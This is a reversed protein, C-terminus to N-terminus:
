GANDHSGDADVGPQDSLILLIHLEAADSPEPPDGPNPPVTVRGSFYTTKTRRLNSPLSGLPLIPERGKANL